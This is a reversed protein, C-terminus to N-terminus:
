IPRHRPKLNLRPKPKPKQSRSETLPRVNLSSKGPKIEAESKPELESEAQTKLEAKAEPKPEAKVPDFIRYALLKVRDNVLFWLWRM